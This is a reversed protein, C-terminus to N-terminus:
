LILVCCGIVLFCFLDSGIVLCCFLDARAFAEKNAMLMMESPNGYEAQNLDSSYTPDRLHHSGSSSFGINYLIIWDTTARCVGLGKIVKGGILRGALCCRLGANRDKQHLWYLLVIAAVEDM